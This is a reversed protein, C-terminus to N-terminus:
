RREALARLGQWAAYAAWKLTPGAGLGERAYFAAEGRRNSSDLAQAMRKLTYAKHRRAYARIAPNQAFLIARDLLRLQYLRRDLESLATTVNATKAPDPINHRAVTIPAYKIMGAKDILRLYLDRDCEWRNAEDLGGIENFLARRVILTNLHCFGTCRLLDAISASYAGSADPQRGERRLIGELDEIWIPGAKREGNAFAIQNAMYLDVPREAANITTAVRVLHDSDIWSDDDDLFGVYDGMARAVGHNLAYSAGHGRPRAILAYYRVRDGAEAITRAYADRHEDDSGDNVVIVEAPPTSQQLVSALAAAFLAPRNRTAIIVSITTM